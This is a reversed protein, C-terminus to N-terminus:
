VLLYPFVKNLKSRNKRPVENAITVKEQLTRSVSKVRNGILSASMM